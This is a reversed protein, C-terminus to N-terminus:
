AHLDSTKSTAPRPIAGDPRRRRFPDFALSAFTEKEPAEPGDVGFVEGDRLQAPGKWTRFLRDWFSFITGFNAYQNEAITSHHLRHARPTIFLLAAAREFGGPLDLNAHTYANMFAFVAFGLILGETPLGLLLVFVVETLSRFVTELPHFRLSTTADVIADTHHVRHLRWLLYWQHLARHQAYALFDLAVIALGMGVWVPADILHLLGVGEAEAIEAAAIGSIWPILAFIVIAYGNMAANRLWRVFDIRMRRWPFLREVVIVILIVALFYAFGGAGELFEM